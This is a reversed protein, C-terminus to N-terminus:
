DRAAGRDGIEKLFEKPSKGESEKFVKSFYLPDGFGSLIAINKVSVLGQEMLFVAHRIRMNRLYRSYTVDKQRKFVASLYKEDYGIMHALAILNFEPDSFNDNTIDVMKSVIDSNAKKVTEVFSLSYLLVAESIIDENGACARELAELWFNVLEHKGEFVRNKDSICLREMLEDGRRGDFLVYCYELDVDSIVAFRNKREVIFLSGKSLPTEEGEVILRGEGKTVIFV